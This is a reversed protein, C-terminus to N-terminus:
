LEAEQKLQEVFQDLRKAKRYYIWGLIWTLPIQLFAYLWAWTFGTDFIKKNMFTPFVALSFPLSFYFVFLFALLNIVLQKKEQMVQHFRREM